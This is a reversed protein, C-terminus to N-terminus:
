EKRPPSAYEEALMFDSESNNEALFEDPLMTVTGPGYFTHLQEESLLEFNIYTKIILRGADVTYAFVGASCTLYEDNEGYTLLADSLYADLVIICNDSTDNRESFRDICHSTYCVQPHAFSRYLKGLNTSETHAPSVFTTFGEKSFDVLCLVDKGFKKGVKKTVDEMFRQRKRMSVRAARRFKKAYEAKIFKEIQVKKFEFDSHKKM